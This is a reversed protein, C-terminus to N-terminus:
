AHALRGGLISGLDVDEALADALDDPDLSPCHRLTGLVNAGTLERIEQANYPQDPTATASVRVLIIGALPSGSRRLQEVALATQNITGLRDASVLLTDMAFHACLAAGLSASTIEPGYPTLVGGASEFLIADAISTLVKARDIIRHVDIPSAALRAAISPALPAPFRYLGADDAAFEPLAAARALREADTPPSSCGTEVPKFPAVRLNRRRALRLLAASVTTKGVGTDSGLISLSRLSM